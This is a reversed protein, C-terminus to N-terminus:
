SPDYLEAINIYMLKDGGGGTILVKGNNLIVTEHRKFTGYTWIIPHSCTKIIIQNDVLFRVNEVRKADIIARVIIIM